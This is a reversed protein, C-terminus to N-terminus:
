SLDRIEVSGRKALFSEVAERAPMSPQAGKVTVSLAGAANAFMIADKLAKGEALGVALGANFADGAATSDEVEVNYAPFHLFSKEDILYAGKDGATCVVKSVRAVKLLVEAAIKIDQDESISTNTLDELETLNPTIIDIREAFIKELRNVPAPDLIVLPKDRPLNRLLLDIAELSVEFQLLLIGAKKIEPLVKGAYIKDVRGNAGPTITIMNKGEDNVLILAIGSSIGKQTVVGDINVNNNELSSKLRQGFVDNGVMGFMRVERGLRGIGVAQNAGKGGPFQQFSRATVTEDLRPFREVYCVLDMNISGFVAIESM